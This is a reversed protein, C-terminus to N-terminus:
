SLCIIIYNIVYLNSLYIIERNLIRKYIEYINFYCMYIHMIRIIYIYIYQLINYFWIYILICFLLFYYISWVLILITLEISLRDYVWYIWIFINKLYQIENIM